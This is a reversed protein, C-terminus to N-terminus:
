RRQRRALPEMVRFFGPKIVGLFSLRERDYREVAYEVRDHVPNGRSPSCCIWPLTFVIGRSRSCKPPTRSFSNVITSFRERDTALYAPSQLNISFRVAYDQPSKARPACDIGFSLIEM